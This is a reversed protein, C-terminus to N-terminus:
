LISWILKRELCRWKGSFKGQLTQKQSPFFCGEVGIAGRFCPGWLAVKISSITLLNRSSFQSSFLLEWNEMTTIWDKQTDEMPIPIIKWQSSFWPKSPLQVPLSSFRVWKRERERYTHVSATWETAYRFFLFVVVFVCFADTGFLGLVALPTRKLTPSRGPKHTYICFTFFVCVCVTCVGCIALWDHIQMM